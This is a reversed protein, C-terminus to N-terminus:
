MSQNNHDLVAVGFAFNDWLTQEVSKLQDNKCHIILIVEASKKNIKLQHKNKRMTTLLNVALGTVFGGAVGIIGWIIPGWELHFGM